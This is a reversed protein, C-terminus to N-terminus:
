RPQALIQEGQFAFLLVITALLATISLPGVDALAADLAAEGRRSSRM